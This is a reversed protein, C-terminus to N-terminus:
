AVHLAGVGTPAVPLRQGICQISSDGEEAPAGWAADGQDSNHQALRGDLNNTRAYGVYTCQTVGGAELLLYVSYM